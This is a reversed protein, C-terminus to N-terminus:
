VTTIVSVALGNQEAVEFTTVILEGKFGNANTTDSVDFTVQSSSLPVMVAM